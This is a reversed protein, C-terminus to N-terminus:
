GGAAFGGDVGRTAWGTFRRELISAAAYMLVGLAAIVLLGAFM